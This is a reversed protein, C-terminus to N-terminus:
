EHEWRVLVDAHLCSATSHSTLPEHVASMGHACSRDPDRRDLGDRRCAVVLIAVHHSEDPVGAPRRRVARPQDTKGIGVRAPGRSRAARSARVDQDARLGGVARDPRRRSTWWTAPPRSCAGCNAPAKKTACFIYRRRSMHRRVVAADLGVCGIEVRIEERATVQNGFSSVTAASPFARTAQLDPPAGRGRARAAHLQERTVVDDHRRDVSARSTGDSPCRASTAACRRRRAASFRSSPRYRRFLSRAAM